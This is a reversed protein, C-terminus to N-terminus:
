AIRVEDRRRRGRDDVWDVAVTEGSRGGAFRLLLYPNEAMASGFAAELVIREGHWVRAETILHAAIREGADDTRFGSEMVHTMRVRVETLDGVLGARILIPEPQEPERSFASATAAGAAGLCGSFSVGVERSRLHFGDASQVLAHVMSTERMRVRTHVEALTGPALSFVAALPHPNREILIAISTTGMLTSLVGVPVVSGDAAVEPAELQVGEDRRPAQAGLAALAAELDRATFAQANRAASAARPVVLGGAALLLSFNVGAHLIRRREGDM